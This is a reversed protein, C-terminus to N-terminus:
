AMQEILKRVGVEKIARKMNYALFSLALDGTAKTKTKMLLYSSDCWRKVTGFPHEVVCKRQKLKEKNPKIRIKVVKVVINPGKLYSVKQGDKLDVQKFKSTTCKNICKNCASRSTFRITPKNKLQACKALVNGEPCIVSQEDESLIFCRDSKGNKNEEVVEIEIGKNSYVTPLVGAELCREIDEPNTSNIM